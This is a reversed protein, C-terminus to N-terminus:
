LPPLEDDRDTAISKYMNYIVPCDDFPVHPALRMHRRMTYMLSYRNHNPAQYHRLMRRFFKVERDSMVARGIQTDLYGEPRRSHKKYAANFVHFDLNNQQCFNTQGRKLGGAVLANYQHMADVYRQRDAQTPRPRRPPGNDNVQDAANNAVSLDVAPVGVLRNNENDASNNGAVARVYNRRTVILSRQANLNPAVVVLNRDRNEGGHGRGRGRGRGRIRRGAM